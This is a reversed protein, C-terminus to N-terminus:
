NFVVDTAKMPDFSLLYLLGLQLMAVALLVAKSGTSMGEGEEGEKKSSSSMQVAAADEAEGVPTVLEGADNIELGLFQRAAALDAEASRPDGPAVIRVGPVIQRLSLEERLAAEYEDLAARVSVEAVRRSRDTKEDENAGADTADAPAFDDASLQLSKVQRLNDLAATRRNAASQVMNIRIQLLGFVVTVFAFAALAPVNVQPEFTQYAQPGSLADALDDSSLTLAHHSFSSDSSSVGLVDHAANAHLAQLRSIAAAGVQRSFTGVLSSSPIFAMTTHKLNTLLFRNHGTWLVAANARAAQHM